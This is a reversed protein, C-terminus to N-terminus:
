TILEISRRDKRFDVDLYPRSEGYLDVFDTRIIDALVFRDIFGVATDSDASSTVVVYNLFMKEFAELVLVIPTYDNVIIVPKEVPLKVQVFSGSQEYQLLTGVCSAPVDNVTFMIQRGNEVSHVARMLELHSVYGLLVSSSPSLLVPYGEHPSDLMEELSDATYPTEPALYICLVRQIPVMAASVALDPLKSKVTTTLSTFHVVGSGKGENLHQPPYHISRNFVDRVWTDYINDKILWDNMFKSAMVAVMIPLVYSVAGSLEFMIVVVSMTYKTLGTMFAAAGIVAYSSPSVLCSSETCQADANFLKQLGQFVIGVFRGTTAGMVLSPMLVGGPLDCGFTYASLFFGQVAFYILKLATVAQNSSCIFNKSDTSIETPCDTFLAKLYANLSLKTLDFPFSLVATVVVLGVTELYPGYAEPARCIRVLRSRVGKRFNVAAWKMNLQIFYSGYVGGVLGLAIFPIFESFLWSFNGFEVSFLDKEMFDKGSAFATLGSYSVVAVTSTIFSNWMIKTPIFFSPMSELVFLVGGIPANFAVSIGTATAASMIERRLSENLDGQVVLELLTNFICCSVHVLPGEKGLWLGSAVVFVLGAGKHILTSVGLYREVDYNLGSVTLKIEPIGSQRIWPARLTIYTVAIAFITAMVLYVPLNFIWSFMANNSGFVIQSWSNWDEAPCTAYPNSLSWSDLQRRCLGKKFDNFFSALLNVLSTAYGVLVASGIVVAWKRYGYTPSSPRLRNEASWDIYTGNEYRKRRTSPPASAGGRYTLTPIGDLTYTSM